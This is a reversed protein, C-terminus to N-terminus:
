EAVQVGRRRAPEVPSSGLFVPRRLRHLEEEEKRLEKRHLDRVQELLGASAELEVAKVFFPRAQRRDEPNLYGNIEAGRDRLRRIVTNLPKFGVNEPNFGLLEDDPLDDLKLDSRKKYAADAKEFRGRAADVKNQQVAIAKEHAEALSNEELVRAQRASEEAQMQENLQIQAMDVALRRQERQVSREEKRQFSRIHDATAEDASTARSTPISGFSDASDLRRQAFSGSSSTMSLNTMEGAVAESDADVVRRRRSGDPSSVVTPGSSSAFSGVDAFEAIGTSRGQPSLSPSRSVTDVVRRTDSRTLSVMERGDGGTSLRRRVRELRATPIPDVPEVDMVAEVDGQATRWVRPSSTVDSAASSVSPSRPISVGTRPPSADMLRPAAPLVVHPSAAAPTGVFPATPHSVPSVPAASASVAVSSRSSAGAMTFAENCSDQYTNKLARQTAESFRSLGFDRELSDVGGANVTQVVLAELSAVRMERVSSTGIRTKNFRDVSAIYELRNSLMLEAVDHAYTEQIHSDLPKRLLGFARSSLDGQVAKAIEAVRKQRLEKAQSEDLSSYDLGGGLGVGWYCAYRDVKESETKLQELEEKEKTLAKLRAESDRKAEELEKKCEGLAKERDRKKTKLGAIETQLQTKKAPDNEKKEKSQLTKIEKQADEVATEFGKVKDELRKIFNKAEKTEKEVEAKKSQFLQAVNKKWTQLFSEGQQIRTKAGEKGEETKKELEAELRGIETKRAAIGGELRDIETDIDSDLLSQLGAFWSRDQKVMKLLEDIKNDSLLYPGPPSLRQSKVHNLLSVAAQKYEIRQRLNQLNEEIERVAQTPCASLRDFGGGKGFFQEPSTCLDKPADESCFSGKAGLRRNSPDEVDGSWHTLKWVSSISARLDQVEKQLAAHEPKCESGLDVHHKKGSPDTYTIYLKSLSLRVDKANPLQLRVSNWVGQVKVDLAARETDSLRSTDKSMRGFKASSTYLAGRSLQTVTATTLPLAM